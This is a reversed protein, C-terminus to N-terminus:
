WSAPREAVVEDDDVRRARREVSVGACIRASASRRKPTPQSWTSTTSGRAAVVGIEAVPDEVGVAALDLLAAVARAAEDHEHAIVPERVLALNADLGRAAEDHRPEFGVALDGDVHAHRAKAGSSTGNM